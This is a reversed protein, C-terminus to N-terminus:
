NDQRKGPLYILENSIIHKWYYRDEYDYKRMIRVEVDFATWYSVRAIMVLLDEKPNESNFRDIVTMYDNVAQSGYFLETWDFEGDMNDHVVDVRNWDNSQNYINSECILIMHNNYILLGNEQETQIYYKVITQPIRFSQIDVFFNSTQFIVWIDGTAIRYDSSSVAFGNM